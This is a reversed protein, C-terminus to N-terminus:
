VTPGLLVGGKGYIASLVNRCITLTEIPPSVSRTFNELLVQAVATVM